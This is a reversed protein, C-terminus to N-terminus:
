EKPTTFSWGTFDTKFHKRVLAKQNKTFSKAIIKAAIDQWNYTHNKDKMTQWVLGANVGETTIQPFAAKIYTAASDCIGVGNVTYRNCSGHTCPCSQLKILPYGAFKDSLEKRRKIDKINKEFSTGLDKIETDTAGLTTLFKRLRNSLDLPIDSTTVTATTM